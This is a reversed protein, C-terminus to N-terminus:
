SIIPLTVRLEDGLEVFNIERGLKKVEAMINPIGRGLNDMLRQAIMFKTLLQNRRFSVGAYLKEVTITNPLKGPSIFEIRDDFMLVRIRSGVISYDRHACANTILERFVKDPYQVRTDVRRLGEITSPSLLNNKVCAFATQIVYSLDGEIHRMDILEGTVDTGHYHAFSIGVQPLYRSSNIGFVLMGALSVEGTPMLIDTNTLLRNRSDEDENEFDIDFYKFYDAILNFNLSKVTTRAVGTLDYHFYGGEQFLRMLEAMSAIRNTSGVRIYYKGDLTQYPRNIGKPVHICAVSKGDLVDVEFDVDLPPNINNRVVNMVFEEYDKQPNLGTIASNDEIGILILGGSSNSFAIVERALSEARVDLSKFEVSSNEGRRVIEKLDETTM